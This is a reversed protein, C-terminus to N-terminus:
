FYIIIRRVSFSYFKRMGGVAAGAFFKKHQKFLRGPLTYAHTAAFHSAESIVAKVVEIFLYGTFFDFKVEVDRVQNHLTM